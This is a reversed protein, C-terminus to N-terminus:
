LGGQGNERFGQIRQIGQLFFVDGEHFGHFIWRILDLQDHFSNAHQLAQFSILDFVILSIRDHTTYKTEAQIRYPSEIM